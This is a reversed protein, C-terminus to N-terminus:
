SVVCSKGKEELEAVDEVITEFSPRKSPDADWGSTILSRLNAPKVEDISPRKGDVAAQVINLTLVTYNGVGSLNSLSVCEFCGLVNTSLSVWNLNM